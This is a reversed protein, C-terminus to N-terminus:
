LPAAALTQVLVDLLDFDDIRAGHPKVQVLRPGIEHGEVARRRAARPKDQRLFVDGFDAIVTEPLVRDAGTRVFEDAGLGADLDHEFGIGIIPALDRVDFRQDHAAGGLRRRPRQHHAGAFGIDADREVARVGLPQLLVPDLDDRRLVGRDEPDLKGLLPVRFRRPMVLPHAVRDVVRQVARRDVLDRTEAEARRGPDDHRADHIVRQLGLRDGVIRLLGLLQEGLGPYGFPKSAPSNAAIGPKGVTASATTLSRLATPM